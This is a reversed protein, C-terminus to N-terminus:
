VQKSILDLVQMKDKEIQQKLKEDNDFRIESRLFQILQVEISKGYLDDHWDFIFTEAGLKEGKTTPNIGINTIGWYWSGEILVRSFYVGFDPIPSNTNLQLNATPTNFKSAGIKFGHVVTGSISFLVKM